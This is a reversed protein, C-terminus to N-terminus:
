PTTKTPAEHDKEKQRPTAPELRGRGPGLCLYCCSGGQVVACRYRAISRRLAKMQDLLPAALWPLPPDDEGVKPGDTEHLEPHQRRLLKMAEAVVVDLMLLPGMAQYEGAFLTADSDESGPGYKRRMM